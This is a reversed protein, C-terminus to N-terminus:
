RSRLLWGANLAILLLGSNEFLFNVTVTMLKQDILADFHHFGVARVAVFAAVIALGVLALGNRRLHRRMLWPGLLLVALACTLLVEIFHRQFARREAYWGQFQAICRGTATLASQLDLQKNVGLFLMMAFIFLWFLREPRSGAARRWVAFALMATVFYSGVTLWGTLNPDGIRPSWRGSVCASLEAWSYSQM